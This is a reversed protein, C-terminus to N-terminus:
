KVMTPLGESSVGSSSSQSSVNLEPQITPSFNKNEYFM